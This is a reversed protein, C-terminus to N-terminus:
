TMGGTCIDSNSVRMSVTREQLLTFWGLLIYNTIVSRLLLEDKCAERPDQDM